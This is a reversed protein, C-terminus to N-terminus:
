KKNKRGKNQSRLRYGYKANYEAIRMYCSYIYGATYLFWVVTSLIQVYGFISTQLFLGAVTIAYTIFMFMRAMNAKKVGKEYGCENCISELSAYLFIHFVLLLGYYLVSDAFSFMKSDFFAKGINLADLFWTSTYLIFYICMAGSIKACMDFSKGYISLKKLGRYSLYAGLAMIPPLIKFFLFNIYGIFILGFGM